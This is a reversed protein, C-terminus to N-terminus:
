EEKSQLECLYKSIAESLPRPQWGLIQAAKDNSGFSYLPEGPRMPRAGFKLLEASVGAERAM